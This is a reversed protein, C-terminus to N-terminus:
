ATLPFFFLCEADGRKKNFCVECLCFLFIFVACLVFFCMSLSYFKFFLLAHEPCTVYRIFHLFDEFSAGLIYIYIYIYIYFLFLFM